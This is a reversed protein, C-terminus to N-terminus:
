REDSSSRVWSLGRASDDLYLRGIYSSLIGLCAFLASFLFTIACFLSLWGEPARKESLARVLGGVGVLFGTIAVVFSGITAARMPLLSLTTMHSIWLSILKGLSYTSGGDQRLRQEVDVEAIRRTAGFVLSDIYARRTAAAGIARAMDGRLARVNTISINRTNGLAFRSSWRNLMSAVIRLQHKAQTKFRGYVVDHKGAILAEVVKLGSEPPNQGDDDLTIVWDGKAAVFGRLTAAHQGQNSGLEIFRVRPDKAHLAEIVTQVDDPSGDNVLVLEFRGHAEFFKVIEAVTDALYGQSRYCPIVISLLGDFPM